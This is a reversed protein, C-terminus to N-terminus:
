NAKETEANLGDLGAGEDAPDPLGAPDAFQEENALEPFKGEIYAASVEVSEQMLVPITSILKQGNPSEYFSIFAQLEEASFNREYIPILQEIIEDVKVRQRFQTVEEPKDAPMQELMMEFNQELAKRTGFVDIFKLVLERKGSAAPAAAPAAPAEAVAVAEPTQAASHVIGGLLFFGTLLIAKVM